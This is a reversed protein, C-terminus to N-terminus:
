KNHGIEATESSCSDLSKESDTGFSKLEYESILEFYILKLTRKLLKRLVRKENSITFGFENAFTLNQINLMPSTVFKFILYREGGGAETKFIRFSSIIEIM